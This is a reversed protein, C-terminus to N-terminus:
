WIRLSSGCCCCGYCRPPYDYSPRPYSGTDRRQVHAWEPFRNRYRQPWAQWCQGPTPGQIFRTGRRKPKQGLDASRTMLGAVATPKTVGPGSWAPTAAAAGIAVGVVLVVVVTQRGIKM